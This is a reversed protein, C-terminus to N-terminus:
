RSCELTRCNIKLTSEKQKMKKLANSVISNQLDKSKMNKLEWKLQNDLSINTNLKKIMNEYFIGFTNTFTKDNILSNNSKWLGPGPKLFIILLFTVLVSSHDTKFGPIIVTDNSFEQLKNSIFIYDLRRNIIGSSHNQGFTQSKRTPNRIRWINCLDYEENLELFKAVSKQKLSPKGGKRELKSDFFLNLYGGSFIHCEEM